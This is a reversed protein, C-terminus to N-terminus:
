DTNSADDDRAEEASEVGLLFAILAERSTFRRRTATAVHEVRGSFAGPAGGDIWVVFARESREREGPGDTPQGIM